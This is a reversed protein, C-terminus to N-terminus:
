KGGFMSILKDYNVSVTEGTDMNKVNFTNNNIEKNLPNIDKVRINKNFFSPSKKNLFSDIPPPSILSININPNTKPHLEDINDINIPDKTPNGIDNNIIFFFDSCIIGKPGNRLTPAIINNNDPISKM